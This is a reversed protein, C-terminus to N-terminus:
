FIKEFTNFMSVYLYTFRQYEVTIKKFDHFGTKTFNQRIYQLKTKYLKRKLQM